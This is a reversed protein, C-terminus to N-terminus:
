FRTKRGHQDREEERSKGGLLEFGGDYHQAGHVEIIGKVDPLYFDYRKAGSITDSSWPFIQERFFAIGLCSLVATMFREPYSGGQAKAAKQKEGKICDIERQLVGKVLVRFPKLPSALRTLEWRLLRHRVAKSLTKNKELEEETFNKRYLKLCDSIFKKRCNKLALRLEDLTM